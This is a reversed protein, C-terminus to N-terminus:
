QVYHTGSSLLVLVFRSHLLSIFLATVDCRMTIEKNRNQSYTDTPFLISNYMLTLVTYKQQAYILRPDVFILM